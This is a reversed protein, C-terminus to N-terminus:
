LSRIADTWRDWMPQNTAERLPDLWSEIYAHDLDRVQTLLSHVDARDQLRWAQLKYIVLDEASAVRFSQGWKELMVSHDFASRDHVSLCRHVDLMPGDRTKFRVFPREFLLRMELETARAGAAVLATKLRAQEVKRIKVVIDCDKTLRPEVWVSMAMGGILLFDVHEHSFAGAVRGLLDTISIGM